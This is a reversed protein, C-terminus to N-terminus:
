LGHPSNRTEPAGHLTCAGEDLMPARGAGAIAIVPTGSPCSWVSNLEPMTQPHQQFGWPSFAGDDAYIPITPQNSTQSNNLLVKVSGESAWINPTAAAWNQAACAQGAAQKSGAILLLVVALTSFVSLGIKSIFAKEKNRNM